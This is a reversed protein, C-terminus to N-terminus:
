AVLSSINAPQRNVLHFNGNFHEGKLISEMFKAYTSLPQFSISIFLTPFFVCFAKEYSFTHRSPQQLEEFFSTSCRM